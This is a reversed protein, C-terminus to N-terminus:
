FQRQPIAGPQPTPQLWPPLQPRLEPEAQFNKQASTGTLTKTGSSASVSNNAPLIAPRTPAVAAQEFPSVPNLNISASFNIPAAAPTSHPELLKRFQETEALQEETQKQSAPAPAAGFPNPWSSNADPASVSAEPKDFVTSFIPQSAKLNEEAAMSRSDMKMESDSNWPPSNFFNTPQAMDMQEQRALFKEVPTQNANTEPLGLIKEPTEVGMIEAPTMLTWNKQKELAQRLQESQAPSLIQPPQLQPQPQPAYDFSPAPAKILDQLASLDAKPSLSPTSNANSFTQNDPASFLIPRGRKMTQAHAATVAVVACIFAPLWRKLAPFNFIM